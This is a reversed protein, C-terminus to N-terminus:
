FVGAVAVAQGCCGGCGRGEGVNMAGFGGLFLALKPYTVESSSCLQPTAFEALHEECPVFLCPEDAGDLLDRLFNYHLLIDKILEDPLQLDLRTQVVRINDPQIPEEVVFVVNVQYQLQSRLPLQVLDDLLLLLQALSRDGKHNALEALSHFIQVAETDDMAVNLWLVDDDM